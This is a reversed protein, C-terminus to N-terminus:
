QMRLVSSNKGRTLATVCDAATVYYFKLNLHFDHELLTNEQLVLMLCNINVRFKIKINRHHSQTPASRNKMIFNKSINYYFISSKGSKKWLFNRM